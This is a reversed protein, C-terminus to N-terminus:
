MRGPIQSSGDTFVIRAQSYKEIRYIWWGDNVENMAEGPWAPGTDSDNKYYYLRPDGWEDPKHFMVTIGEPRADSWEGGRYWMEGSVPFGDEMRAPVQADAGNSFLVKLGDGMGFVTRSWWGDGDPFM